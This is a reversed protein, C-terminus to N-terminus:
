LAPPAKDELALLYREWMGKPVHKSVAEAFGVHERSYRLYHKDGHQCAEINAIRDALKVIAADPCEALKRYISASHAQRDGNGEGTVAWVVKAIHEGFQGKIQDVTVNTDEVTDHLWGAIVAESSAGFQELLQVVAILHDTYPKDGYRQSKHAATALDQAANLRQGALQQSMPSEGSLIM